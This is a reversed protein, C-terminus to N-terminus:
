WMYFYAISGRTSLVLSPVSSSAVPHLWINWRKLWFKHLLCHSVELIAREGLEEWCGAFPWANIMSLFNLLFLRRGFVNRIWQPRQVMFKADFIFPLGNLNLGKLCISVVSPESKVGVIDHMSYTSDITRPIDSSQQSGLLSISLMSARMNTV